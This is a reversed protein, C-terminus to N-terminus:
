SVRPKNFFRRAVLSVSEVLRSPSSRRSTYAAAEGAGDSFSVESGVVAVLGNPLCCNPALVEAIFNALFM